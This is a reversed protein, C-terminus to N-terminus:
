RGRGVAGALSRAELELAALQRKVKELETQKRFVKDTEEKLNARLEEAKSQQSKRARRLDDLLAGPGSLELATTANVTPGLVAPMISPTLVYRRQPASAQLPQLDMRIVLSSNFACQQGIAMKRWPDPHRDIEGSTTNRSAVMLICTPQAEADIKIVTVFDTVNKAPERFRVIIRQVGEAAPKAAAEILAREKHWCAEPRVSILKLGPVSNRIHILCAGASQVLSKRGGDLQLHVLTTSSDPVPKPLLRAGRGDLRFYKGPPGGPAAVLPIRTRFECFFSPSPALAAGLATDTTDGPPAPDPEFGWALISDDGLDKMIQEQLRRFAKDGEGYIMPMSVGFIGLLSYAIDEPRKTVRKAAWSMRQAVSAQHLDAMGLLFSTPIRNIAEQLEVSNTKDICCTHIWLYQYGDEKAIKCSGSVKLPRSSDSAFRGDLVDRFSVEENDSGWTHSLIAYAPPSSFFEELKFTDVNLVRMTSQITIRGKEDEGVIWREDGAIHGKAALDSWMQTPFSAEQSRAAVPKTSSSRRRTKGTVGNTQAMTVTATNKVVVTPRIHVSLGEFMFSHRATVRVGAAFDVMESVTLYPFDEHRWCPAWGPWRATETAYIPNSSNTESLAWPWGVPSPSSRPQSRDDYNEHHHGTTPALWVGHSISPRFGNTDAMRWCFNMDVDGNAGCTDVWMPGHVPGDVINSLTSTPNGPQSAGALDTISRAAIKCAKQTFPTPAPIVPIGTSRVLHVRPPSLSSHQGDAWRHEEEIVYLNQSDLALSRLRPTARQRLGYFDLERWAMRRIVQPGATATALSARRPAKPNPNSDVLGQANAASTGNQGSWLGTPLSPARAVVPRKGGQPDESPRYASPSSIDWIALQEIPDDQYLSRNPQWFYVAYHTATHASFFRDSRNLPLGLFHLKWESRFEVTWTRETPAGSPKRIVDFATVFHRHVVERDNLQHYPLAEAWEFILVGQALRVRRVHRARVDFSVPVRQGTALDLIHYIRGDCREPPVELAAPYVLVGDEQSYWWVPDPYHFNCTGYSVRLFRNWHAVGWFSFISGHEQSSPALELKEIVGPRGKNLHFYRRAVEAFTSSWNRPQQAVEELEAKVNAPFRTELISGSAVAAALRLERCRPINWRLLLLSIDESTFAAHWQRSVARCRVCDRPSLYWIILLFLDHPLEAIDRM